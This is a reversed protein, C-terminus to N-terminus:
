IEKFQELYDQANKLLNNYNEIVPLVIRNCNSCLIGRIRGTIHNHDLHWKGRGNPTITSCIACMRNQSNFIAEWDEPTINYKKKLWYRWATGNEVSRQHVKKKIEPHKKIWESQYERKYTRGRETNVFIKQAEKACEKCRGQASRGTIFTDHGQPCFQIKSLREENAKKTCSNCIHRGIRFEEINQVIKCKNCKDSVLM